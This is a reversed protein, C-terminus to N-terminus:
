ATYKRLLAVIDRLQKGLQSKSAAQEFDEPWLSDQHSHIYGEWEKETEEGWVFQAIFNRYNAKVVRMIGESVERCPGESRANALPAIWNLSYNKLTGFLIDAQANYDGPFSENLYKELGGLESNPSYPDFKDIFDQVDFLYPLLQTEYSVDFHLLNDLASVITEVPRGGEELRSRLSRFVSEPTASEQESVSRLLSQIAGNDRTVSQVVNTLYIIRLHDCCEKLEKRLLEVVAGFQNRAARDIIEKTGRGGRLFTFLKSKSFVPFERPFPCDPASESEAYIREMEKFASGFAAKLEEKFKEQMGDLQKDVPVKFPARLDAWFIELHVKEDFDSAAAISPSIAAAFADTASRVASMAIALKADAQRIRLDDIRGAQKVLTDINADVMGRVESQDGCNCIVAEIGWKDMAGDKLSEANKRNNKAPWENLIVQVWDNIDVENSPYVESLMDLAKEDADGWGDGSAVPLRLFFVIDADEKISKLMAERIGPTPDELGPIDYVTMGKPLNDPFPTEIEVYDVVQYAKQGGDKVLFDRISNMDSISEPAAGLKARLTEDKLDSQLALVKTWNDQASKKAGSNKIDQKTPLSADLFASLSGPPTTKGIGWETGLPAFSPYVKQTLLATETLFHITASQVDGNHVVSRSATCFGGDGTPIQKDGLGTLMQLIKSKGQRAKGAVGINLSDRRLRLLAAECAAKAELLRNEAENFSVGNMVPALEPYSTAIAEKRLHADNLTSLLADIKQLNKEVEPRKQARVERIKAVIGELNKSM